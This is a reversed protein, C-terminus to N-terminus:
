RYTNNSRATYIGNAVRKLENNIIDSIKQRLKPDIGFFKRKPIEIKSGVKKIAMNRWFEAERSMAMSKKSRSRKGSKLTKIGGRAQIHRAWFYRKMKATVTITAGNNHVGAYQVDNFILVKGREPKSDISDYLHNNSSLLTGYRGRAGSFALKRRYPEKWKQGNFGGERFNDQLHYEATKGVKVPLVRDVLRTLEQVAGGIARQLDPKQNMFLIEKRTKKYQTM